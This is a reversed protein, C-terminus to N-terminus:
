VPRSSSNSIVKGSKDVSSVKDKIVDGLSEFYNVPFQYICIVKKVYQKTVIQSFLPRIGLSSLNGRNVLTGGSIWNAFHNCYFNFLDRKNM